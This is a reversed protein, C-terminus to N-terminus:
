FKGGLYQHFLYLTNVLLQLEANSVLLSSQDLNTKKSKNM